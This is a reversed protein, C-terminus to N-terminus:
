ASDDGFDEEAALLDDFTMDTPDVQQLPQISGPLLIAPAAPLVVRGHIVRRSEVDFDAVAALWAGGLVGMAVDVDFLVYLPASIPGYLDDDLTRQEAAVPELDTSYPVRPHKRVRMTVGRGALVLSDKKLGRRSPACLTADRPDRAHGQLDVWVNQRVYGAVGGGHVDEVTCRGEFSAYYAELHHEILGRVVGLSFRHREVIQELDRPNHQDV